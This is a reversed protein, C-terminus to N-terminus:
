FKNGRLAAVAGGDIRIDCGSIYSAADSLLFQVTLAIDMATGWRGAPTADVLAQARRGSEAERRGMSTWVMGPSVSVIRAGSQGWNSACAECLNIIARKTLSYAHGEMTGGDAAALVMLRPELADELGIRLPSALLAEAADDRPGLHGAVSAIMVCATGQHLLPEVAALLRAPGIVNAAVISRWDAQVPALGAANVVSHLRAGSGIMNSLQGAVGLQALDGTLGEAEMGEDRLAQILAELREEAVDNLVLRNSHGLVRAIASGIGGSAGTIIAVPKMTM